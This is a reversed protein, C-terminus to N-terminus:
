AYQQMAHLMRNVPSELNYHEALMLLAEPDAPEDPIPAILPDPLPVPHHLRVVPDAATLYERSALVKAAVGKAMGSGPDLAAEIIAHLDGFRTVLSAATKEGIGPVGPLGDSADGRLIAMDAYQRGTVSYKSHLWSDDVLQLNRMGKATYIVRHARDDDVLQFMDRDGTVIEVPGESRHTLAAIVDDAEFGDVGLRAFGLAALVAVM